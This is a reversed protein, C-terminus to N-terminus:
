LLSMLQCLFYMLPTQAFICSYQVDLALQGKGDMSKGADKWELYACIGTEVGEMNVEFSVKKKKETKGRFARKRM